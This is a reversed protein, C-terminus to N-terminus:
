TGISALLSKCKYNDCTRDKTLYYPSVPEDLM